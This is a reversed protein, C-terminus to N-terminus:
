THRVYINFFCNGDFRVFSVNENLVIKGLASRMIDLLLDELDKFTGKKKAVARLFLEFSKLSSKGM